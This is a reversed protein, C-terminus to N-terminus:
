PAERMLRQILARDEDDIVVHGDLILDGNADVYGHDNTNTDIFRRLITALREDDTPSVAPERGVWTYSHDDSLTAAFDSWLPSPAWRAVEIGDRLVSYYGGFDDFLSASM